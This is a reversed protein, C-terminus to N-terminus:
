NGQFLEPCTKIAEEARSKAVNYLKGPDNERLQVIPVGGRLESGTATGRNGRRQGKVRTDASEMKERAPDYLKEYFEKWQGKRTSQRNLLDKSTYKGGKEERNTTGKGFDPSGEGEKRTVKYNKTMSGTEKADGKESIGQGPEGSNNEEGTDGEQEGERGAQKGSQALEQGSSDESGSISNKCSSLESAIRDLEKEGTGKQEMSQLNDAIQGLKESARERDNKQLSALAQEMDKKMPDSSTLSDKMKSLEDKMKELDSPSTGKGKLKEAMDRMKQSLLKRDKEGTRAPSGSAKQMKELMSKSSDLSKKEQRYKDALGSIRAMAEKKNVGPKKLDSSLQQLERAKKRLEEKKSPEPPKLQDLHLAVTDLKRAILAIKKRDEYGSALPVLNWPPVLTLLVLLPVTAFLAKYTKRCTFTFTKSPNITSMSESTDKLLGKFMLTRKKKGEIWELVTSLREKLQLREDANLAVKMLPIKQFTFLLLAIMLALGSPILTYLIIPPGFGLIKFIVLFLLSLSTGYVSYALVREYFLVKRYRHSLAKLRELFFSEDM